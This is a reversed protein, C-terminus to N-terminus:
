LDRVIRCAVLLKHLLWCLGTLFTKDIFEVATDRLSWDVGCLSRRLVAAVSDLFSVLRDDDHAHSCSSKLCHDTVVLSKSFMQCVSLLFM